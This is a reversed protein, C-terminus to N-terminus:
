VLLRASVDIAMTSAPMAGLVTAGLQPQTEERRGGLLLSRTDQIMGCLM